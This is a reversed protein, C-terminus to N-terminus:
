RSKARAARDRLYVDLIRQACERKSIAGLSKVAGATRLVRAHVIDQGIAARGNLVICDLGKERLKKRGQVVAQQDELSFGIFYRHEKYGRLAKLIDANKEMRITLAHDHVKHAAKKLPRYDGVAAAMILCDCWPVHHKLERLMDGATRVRIVDLGDPIDVSTQGMICRANGGRAVVAYLLERAMIGSSRNTVVRVPDIDEETRGGAILINRGKLLELGKKVVDITRDILAIAPFRGYGTKGSALAGIAPELVRYGADGLSKVNKQVINNRWMGNDMAPVFLIPKPFSVITTSLLDDAIGCAAKGIINATAPAVVLIDAWASLALHKIGRTLVFQDLYVDNGSLTQCSLATAFHQASRTLIVRVDDGRRTRQRILEFAKYAAISGTIGVLINM